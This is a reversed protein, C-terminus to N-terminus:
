LCAQVNLNNVSYLVNLISLICSVCCKKRPFEFGKEITKKTQLFNNMSWKFVEFYIPFQFRLDQWVFCKYWFYVSLLWLLFSIKMYFHVSNEHLFHCFTKTIYSVFTAALIFIQKNSWYTSLYKREPYDTRKHNKVLCFMLTLSISVFITASISNEHLLLCNTKSCHWVFCQHRSCFTDQTFLKQWM